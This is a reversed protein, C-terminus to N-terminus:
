NIAVFPGKRGSHEHLHRAILEKGTGTEGIILLAAETPAVREVTTLIRASLPDDFVLARARVSLPHAQPDPFTLLKNM